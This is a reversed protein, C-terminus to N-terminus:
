SLVSVLQLERGNPPVIETLFVAALELQHRNQAEFVLIRSLVAEVSPQVEGRLRCEEFLINERLALQGEDIDAFLQNVRVELTRDYIVPGDREVVPQVLDEVERGIFGDHRGPIIVSPLLAFAENEGARVGSIYAVQSSLTIVPSDARLLCGSTNTFAQFSHASPVTSSGLLWRPWETNFRVASTM